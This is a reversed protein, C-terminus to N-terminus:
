FGLPMEVAERTRGQRKWDVQNKGQMVPEGLVTRCKRCERLPNLDCMFLDLM